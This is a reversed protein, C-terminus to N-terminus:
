LLLEAPYFRRCNEDAGYLGGPVQGYIGFVTNTNGCDICLIM